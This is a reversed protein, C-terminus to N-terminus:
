FIGSQAVPIQYDAIVDDALMKAGEFRIEAGAPILVPMVVSKAEIGLAVTGSVNSLLFENAVADYVDVANTGTNIQVVKSTSYPNFYLYTPYAAARYFDTALLDLQLIGPVNSTEICAAMLGVHSSGYLGLDTAAWGMVLPDGMAMPSTNSPDRALGEYAICSDPDYTSAWSACTQNTAPLYGSYFLRSANAVNLVWKAIPKAYRDDYRVMPVMAGVTDFTNMAFVYGGKSNVVSGVLGDCDYGGWPEDCVVGFGPRCGESPGFVWDLLKGTDYDTGLEANMRAAIYVGYPLLIEYFPNQAAGAPRQQLFDMAWRATNLHNTDGWKIWAMYDIWAYGAAADPEFAGDNVPTMTDFDFATHNFDPVTWPSVAGGMAKAAETYRGACIRMEAEMGGTDPHLALLQSFLLAPYTDFWFGHGSDASTGNLVLNEENKLNFYQEMMVVWNTGNQNSKDIGCLSAGRVAAICTNATHASGNTMLPHGVYTPMGFTNFNFNRKTTDWWILPLYDGTKSFDFVFADYDRAVRKWDRMLYPSPLDPMADVRALGVPLNTLVASVDDLWITGTESQTGATQVELRVRDSGDPVPWVRQKGVWGCSGECPITFTRLLANTQYFRMVFYFGNGNTVSDYKWFWKAKLSLDGAGFPLDVLQYWSGYANTSVDTIKLSRSGTCVADTAWILNASSLNGGKVWGAPSGTEMDGNVVLSGPLLDAPKPQLMFIFAALYIAGFM